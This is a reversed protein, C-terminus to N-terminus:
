SLVLENVQQLTPLATMAGKVSAALGGSVSAFRAMEAAEALTIDALNREYDNLKHLMGSVFADGAGTTDVAQVKKAPVHVHGEKTVCYSGNEGFTVLLLPINYREM